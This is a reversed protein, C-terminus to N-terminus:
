PVVLTVTCLGLIEPSGCLSKFVTYDLDVIRGTRRAPGYGWSFGQWTGHPGVIEIRTGRPLRTVVHGAFPGWSATGRLSGGSALLRKVPDTTGVRQSATPTAPASTPGVVSAVPTASAQLMFTPGMPAVPVFLGPNVTATPLFASRISAPGSLAFLTLALLLVIWFTRISPRM